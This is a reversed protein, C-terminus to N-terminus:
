ALKLMLRLHAIEGLLAIRDVMSNTYNLSRECAQIQGLIIDKKGIFLGYVQV